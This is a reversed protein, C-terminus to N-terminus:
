FDSYDVLTRNLMPSEVEADIDRFNDHRIRKNQSPPRVPSPSRRSRKSPYRPSPGPRDLLESHPPVLTNQRAGSHPSYHFGVPALPASQVTPPMPRDPDLLFTDLLIPELAKDVIKALAIKQKNLIHKRVFKESKFLKNPPLKCRFRNPAEKVTNKEIFSNTAKCSRETAKATATVLREERRRRSDESLQKLLEQVLPTWPAPVKDDGSEPTDSVRVFNGGSAHLCDGMDLYRKGSYYCVSHVQRLYEVAFDLREKTTTSSPVIGEDSMLLELSVPASDNQNLEQDLNASLVLSLKLDAQMQAPSSAIPPLRRVPNHQKRELQFHFQREEDTRCDKFIVIKDDLEELGRVADAETRFVLYVM